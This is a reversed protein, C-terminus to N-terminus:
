KLLETQSSSLVGAAIQFGLQGFILVDDLLLLLLDDM